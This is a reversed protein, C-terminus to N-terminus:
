QHPIPPPARPGPFEFYRQCAALRGRREGPCAPRQRGLDPDGATRVNPRGRPGWNRRQGEDRRQPPRLPASRRASGGGGGARGPLRPGAAGGRAWCWTARCVQAAPGKADAAEAARPETKGLKLTKGAFLPCNSIGLPKPVWPCRDAPAPGESCSLFRCQGNPATLASLGPGESRPTVLVSALTARHAFGTERPAPLSATEVRGRPRQFSLPLWM